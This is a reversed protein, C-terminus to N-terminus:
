AHFCSVWTISTPVLNALQSQCAPGEEYQVFPEVIEWLQSTKGDSLEKTNVGQPCALSVRITKVIGSDSSAKAQECAERVKREPANSTSTCGHVLVVAIVMLIRTTLHPTMRTGVAFPEPRTRYPTEVVSTVRIAAVTTLRM